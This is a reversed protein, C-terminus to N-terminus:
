SLQDPVDAAFRTLLPVDAIVKAPVVCSEVVLVSFLKKADASVNSAVAPFKVSDPLEIRRLPRRVM